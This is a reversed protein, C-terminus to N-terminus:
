VLPILALRHRNSDAAVTANGNAKAHGCAAGASGSVNATPPLGDDDHLAPVGVNGHVGPVALLDFHVTVARDRPVNRGADDARAQRGLNRDPGLRPL